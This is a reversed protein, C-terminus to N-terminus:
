EQSKTHLSTLGTTRSFSSFSVTGQDNEQDIRLAKVVIAGNTPTFKLANSVLNRLM